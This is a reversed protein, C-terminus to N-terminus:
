FLFYTNFDFKLITPFCKVTLSTNGILARSTANSIKVKLDGNRLRFNMDEVHTRFAQIWRNWYFCVIERESSIEFVYQRLWEHSLTKIGARRPQNMDLEWLKWSDMEAYFYGFPDQLGCQDFLDKVIPRISSFTKYFLKWILSM